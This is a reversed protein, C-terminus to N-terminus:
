VATAHRCTSEAIAHSKIHSVAHQTLCAPRAHEEACGPHIVLPPPCSVQRLIAEYDVGAYVITGNSIHQEYEEREEITVHQKELDEYSAFRQVAEEALNGAGHLCRQLRQDPVSIVYAFWRQNIGNTEYHTFPHEIAWPPCLADGAFGLM